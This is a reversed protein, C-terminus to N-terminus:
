FGLSVNHLSCSLRSIFLSFLVANLVALSLLKRGKLNYIFIFFEFPPPSSNFLFTRTYLPAKKPSKSVHM